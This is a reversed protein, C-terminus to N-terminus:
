AHSGGHLIVAALTALLLWLAVGTRVLWLARAISYADAAAGEGLAPRAEWIGHYPAAGGLRVGLAGAGAAMVPGANPSDWHPAQTRWCRLACACDGLVAYTLATLRAPVYNLVDDVRAACWGFREYRPTRYGWMADLTNALRYLVAGPAGLLAFWFLAGFVADNGNELVSETAAAAVQNADLLAGDRSVMRAVATRAADLDGDALANAVPQAHEGLSRLGITVYLLTAGVAVALWSSLSAAVHVVLGALAVIPLVACAWAAAGALHRHAFLRREIWGALRGFAVLPHARRPEGLWVDLAVAALM